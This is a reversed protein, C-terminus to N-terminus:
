LGHPDGAGARVAATARALHTKVTEVSLDTAAAIEPLTWGEEVRLTWVLRQRAPLRAVAARARLALQADANAREPSPGPDPLELGAEPDGGFGLWRRLGRWRLARWCERVVIARLWGRVADADRLEGRHRWARLWAEQLVERADEPDRLLRCALAMAAPASAELAALFAAEELARPEAAPIAVPNM